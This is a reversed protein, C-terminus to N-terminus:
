QTATLTQPLTAAKWVSRTVACNASISSFKPDIEMRGGAQRRAEGDLGPHRGSLFQADWPTYLSNTFYIRKAM